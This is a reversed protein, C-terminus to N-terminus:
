KGLKGGQADVLLQIRAPLARCLGDVDYHTNVRRVVEKLRSAYDDVTEEWARMPLTQTLGKRIWAVATEHLMMEQLMGPQASADEGMFPSLGHDALAHQFQYTIRGTGPNFFGKGRDVFVTRPCDTGRFRQQLAIHVKHVLDPAADPHDGACNEGLVEVHLKGRALIPLWWVRVTDWSNMKLSRKDGRLNASFHESGDSCWVKGGKRALAQEQAKKETRPLISNCFDTWVVHRWFWLPSRHRSQMWEAWRLRKAMQEDTLASRSLRRKLSWTNEPHEDDDFCCERFCRYVARKDVPLGTDPNIVAAPCAALVQAYTPDGGRLKLAKASRAVAAAKPGRLVRKRGRRKGHIKGPFWDDDADMNALMDKVSNVTPHGGGVKEVRAAIWSLLGYKSEAQAPQATHMWAERLAWVKLQERPALTGHQGHLWLDRLSEQRAMAFSSRQWPIPTRSTPTETRLQPPRLALHSCPM